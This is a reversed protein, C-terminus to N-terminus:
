VLVSHPSYQDIKSFTFKQYSLSFKFLWKVVPFSKLRNWVSRLFNKGHLWVDEVPNQEPSNPAFIICTFEWESQEKGQNLSALFEQIERSKHYAAGDWILAIRKGSFESKLYKMFDITNAGNAVDYERLIFEKTQYNLAGFYTQRNRQNLIPIEIRIDSRGWVYGCVDGWCLHCENLFLVILQGSEIEAQNILM